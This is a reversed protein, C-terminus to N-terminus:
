REAGVSGVRGELWDGDGKWSDSLSEGTAGLRKGGRGLGVRGELGCSHRGWLGKQHSCVKFVEVIIVGRGVSCRQELPM